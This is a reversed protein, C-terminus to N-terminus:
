HTAPKLGKSLKSPEGSNEQNKNKKNLQHKKLKMM